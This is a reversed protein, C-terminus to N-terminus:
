DEIYIIEESDVAESSSKDSNKGSTDAKKNANNETNKTTKKKENTNTKETTAKSSNDIKTKKSETNRQVAETKGTEQEIDAISTPVETAATSTQEETAVNKIKEEESKDTYSKEGNETTTINVMTSNEETLKKNNEETIKISNEYKKQNHNHIMYCSASISIIWLIACCLGYMFWGSIKTKIGKNAKSRIEELFDSVTLTRETIDTSLAHMIAYEMDNDIEIGYQSPYKLADEKSRFIAEEPTIGTICKYMTAALAYVDTWAGQNGSSMYQETPSFGPVVQVSLSKTATASTAKAAGFDTLKANGERDIVITEPSINRHILGESHMKILSLAVPELLKVTEDASIKVRENIYESLRKGDVAEIIQYATNNNRFVDFIRTIGEDDRFKALKKAEDIFSKLKEDFPVQFEYSFLGVTISDDERLTYELPFFEKITVPHQLVRDYGSYIISDGRYEVSIGVYYRDALWTGPTIHYPEKKDALPNRGCHPCVNDINVLEHMCFCCLKM